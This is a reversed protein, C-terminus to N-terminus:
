CAFYCLLWNTVIILVVHSKKLSGHSKNIPYECYKVALKIASTFFNFILFLNMEDVVIKLNSIMNLNRIDKQILNVFIKGRIDKPDILKM